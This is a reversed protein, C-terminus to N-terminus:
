FKDFKSIIDEKSEGEQSLIGERLVFVFLSLGFQCKISKLTIMHRYQTGYRSSVQRQRPHHAHPLLHPLPWGTALLLGVLGPYCRSPLPKLVSQGDISFIFFVSLYIFVVFVCWFSESLYCGKLLLFVYGTSPTPTPHSRKPTWSPASSRSTTSCCYDTCTSPDAKRCM